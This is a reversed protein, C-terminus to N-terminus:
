NINFEELAYELRDQGWFIKNNILFTPAGFVEKKFAETTLKILKDKISQEKISKFFKETDIKLYALLKVINEMNSLDQNDKWYADFFCDLYKDKKDETVYLYGRMISLSNIPFKSNWNFKINNKKAVLDCDNKM